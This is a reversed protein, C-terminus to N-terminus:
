PRAASARDQEADVDLRGFEELGGEDDQDGPQEAFRGLAGVHRGVGERERQQQQHDRQQHHLGVEALGHQDRQHPARQEEHGAHPQDPHEADGADGADAQGGGIERHRVHRAADLAEEIRGRAVGEIDVDGGFAEHAAAPEALARALAGHLPQQGSLWVSKTNATAASSNPTASQRASTASNAKMTMRASARAMRLSSGNVRKAAAPRAMRNPMCDAILMATFRCRIGALPMVSGNM